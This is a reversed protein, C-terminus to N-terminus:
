DTLYILESDLREVQEESLTPRERDKLSKLYGKLSPDHEGLAFTVPVSQDGELSAQAGPSTFVIIPHVEMAFEPFKNDFYKQLAQAEAQAEATPNRLGEQRMFTLIRSLIGGPMSWRDDKVVILRDHFLPYLVYVGMPSLLVHRGPLVFHYLTAKSSLGRLGEQLAEWPVPERIWSNAMRVSFLIILFLTPLVGCNFYFAVSENSAALSNGFLFAALLAVLSFIFSYQAIRRNRQIVAEHTIVRM